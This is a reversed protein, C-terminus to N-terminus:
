KGGLLGKGMEIKSVVNWKLVKAKIMMLDTKNVQKPMYEGSLYDQYIRDTFECYSKGIAEMTLMKIRDRYYEYNQAVKEIADLVDRKDGFLEGAEGVIEPHGGDNRAVSPLGCHLAEILANSCPDNVSATIFTDHERLIEALRESPQPPIYEIRKFKIPSRGVFTIEYRDFDLNEDLFKYIDFGKRINPAWSTAILKIKEGQRKKNKQPYFIESDPANIIVTEFENKKMGLEYSKNRSWKSQFVTGDAISQNFDFIIKDTERDRGRTYHIPGDVRHIFITQPRKIKLRLVSKLEHHSNFLIVDADNPSEAYCGKKVFYKRLAKLFQNGGGWAEEKFNYLIHIKM